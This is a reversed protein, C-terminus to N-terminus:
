ASRWNFGLRNETKGVHGYVRSYTFADKIYHPLQLGTSDNVIYSPRLGANGKFKPGRGGGPGENRAKLLPFLNRNQAKADAIVKDAYSQFIDEEKVVSNTSQIHQELQKDEEIKLKEKKTAIQNRYFNQIEIADDRKKKNSKEVSEKFNKDNTMRQLLFAKDRLRNEDRENNHHRIMRLRQENTAYLSEIGAQRTREEERLRKNEKESVVKAIREDEDDVRAQMELQLKNRIKATHNQFAEFLEHEKEKRLSAMKRKAAVFKKIEKEIEMEKVKEENIREKKIELENRYSDRLVVKYEKKRKNLDKLTAQCKDNQQKITQGELIDEQKEEMNCRLRDKRQMCQFEANDFAQEFKAKAKEREERLSDEYNQKQQLVLADEKQKEWNKKAIKMEIQADREKLVETLTLAAHFGKIRDTQMYQLRKAGEIAEKRKTAQVKVEEIDFKQREMEDQEERIKRAQLKKLRQGEITNDWRKVRNKSVNYLDQREEKQKKYKEGESQYNSVSNRIRQWDHGCIIAVERRGIESPFVSIDKLSNNVEGNKNKNHGIGVKKVASIM